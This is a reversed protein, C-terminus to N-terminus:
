ARAIYFNSLEVESRHLTFLKNDRTVLYDTHSVWEQEKKHSPLTRIINHLLPHRSNNILYVDQDFVFGLEKEYLDVMTLSVRSPLMTAALGTGDVLIQYLEQESEESNFTFMESFRSEYEIFGNYQIPTFTNKIVEVLEEGDIMLSDFEIKMGLEIQMFRKLVKTALEDFKELVDILDLTNPANLEKVSMCIAKYESAMEAFTKKSTIRSIIEGFGEISIFPLVDMAMCRFISVNQGVQQQQLRVTRAEFILNDTFTTMLATKNLYVEPATNDVADLKFSDSAVKGERAFRDTQYSTSGRMLTHQARDMEIDELKIFPENQTTKVEVPATVPSPKQERHYRSDEEDRRAYTGTNARMGPQMPVGFNGMNGPVSQTVNPMMGPMMGPQMMGPMMGPQQYMNPQMMGPMMNSQVPVMQMSAIEQKLNNLVGYNTMAANILQPQCYAKLEPFEFVFKSTTLTVAQECAPQLASQIGPSYGKRINIATIGLALAVVDNFYQNVWNNSSLLNYTFVRSPNLSSKSASENAVQCAFIPLWPQFEPSCQIQPTYPFQGASYMVPQNILRDCPVPLAM